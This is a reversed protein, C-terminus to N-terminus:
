FIIFLDTFVGIAAHLLFVYWFSRTKLAIIGFIIGVIISGLIEGEPKGIHILCSSITQILIANIDGFRKRLGFLVFGRFYFEWAFYYFIVYFAEYILLGTRDELLSKALPYEERVDPFRSAIYILPLILLPILLLTKLGTKIEGIGMGFSSLAEKMFIKIYLVPLFFTLFFFFIFQVIIKAQDEPIGFFYDIDASGAYFHYRYISLLLPASILIFYVHIDRIDFDLGLIKRM